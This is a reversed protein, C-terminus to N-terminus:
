KSVTVVFNNFMDVISEVLTYIQGSILYLLCIFLVVLQKVRSKFYIGMVSAGTGNKQFAQEVAAKAENSVLLSKGHAGLAGKEAKEEHIKEKGKDIFWQFGPINIYALDMVMTFALLAMILIALFGLLTGLVGEFPKFYSYAKYYDPKVNEGLQKILSSVPTDQQAIFNYIKNRNTSSLKSDRITSLVINMVKERNSMSMSKYATMDLNITIYYFGGSPKSDVTLFNVIKNNVDYARALNEAVQTELDKIYGNEANNAHSIALFPSADAKVNLYPTLMLVLGMIVMILLIKILRKHIIVKM